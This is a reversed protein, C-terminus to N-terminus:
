ILMRGHLALSSGCRKMWSPHKTEFFTHMRQPVDANTKTQSPIMSYWGCDCLAHENCSLLAAHCAAQVALMKKMLKNM